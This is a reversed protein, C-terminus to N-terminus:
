PNLYFGGYRVHTKYHAKDELVMCEKKLYFGICAMSLQKFVLNEMIPEEVKIISMFNTQFGEQGSLMLKAIIQSDYDV